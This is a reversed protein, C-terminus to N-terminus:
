SIISVLAMFLQPLPLLALTFLGIEIFGQDLSTYFTFNFNQNLDTKSTGGAIAVVEILFAGLLLTVREILLYLM